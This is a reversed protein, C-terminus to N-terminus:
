KLHLNFKSTILSLRFNNSYSLLLDLKTVLVEVEDHNSVNTVGDQYFLEVLLLTFHRGTISKHQIFQPSDECFV